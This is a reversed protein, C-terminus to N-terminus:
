AAREWNCASLGNLLEKIRASAANDLSLGNNRCLALISEPTIRSDRVRLMGTGILYRVKALSMRLLKRLQTLSWGDSLKASKGLAGLRFRVARVSRGLRQAIKNIPEYGAWNSLCNDEEATWSRSSQRSAPLLRKNAKTPKEARQLGQVALRRRLRRIRQLLQAPEM